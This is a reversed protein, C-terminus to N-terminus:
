PAEILRHDVMEWGKAGRTMRLEGAVPAPPTGTRPPGADIRYRAVATDATVEIQVDKMAFTPLHLLREFDRLMSDHMARHLSDSEPAEHGVTVHLWIKMDHRHLAREMEALHDRIARRDRQEPRTERYALLAGAVAAAGLLTAVWRGSRDGPSAGVQANM